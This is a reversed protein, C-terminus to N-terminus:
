LWAVRPEPVAVRNRIVADLAMVTSVCLDIKESAKGKSFKRNGAADQEIVINSFQWKLLDNEPFIIGQELVLRELEQVPAAMSAYGQGFQIVELGMEELDQIIKTSGWRDFCVGKLDYQSKLEGIKQLIPDYKIVGGPIPEIFGKQAWTWYPLRDKKTREPISDGPCWCFPIVYFPEGPLPEPILVLGTTDSISALDLGAWMARGSLDPILGVCADYAATSIFKGSTEVRQNLYLNRFAAEKQPMLKAQDAFSRMEELSRFDGLAPNCKFWTEESWPDATDPATYIKGYFTPDHPLTGEEISLAYDILESLIHHPDASQTSIVISLPELRAGTGTSINDWLERDKSQALEDYVVFSPSLGHAKRADSSLARYVSGTEEDIIEKTFARINCRENFEPVRIILAEMERFILSAQERDAACSFIQGREEVEPGILHALALAAALSTKGQKRPLSLVATRVLRCNDDGVAYISYIIEKQWDRLVLRKGADMGATVPLVEIFAIVKEARSLKDNEWPPNKTKWAKKIHKKQVKQTSPTIGHKGM